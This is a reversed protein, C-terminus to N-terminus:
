VEIGCAVQPLNFWSGERSGPSEGGPSKKYSFTHKHSDLPRSEILIELFGHPIAKVGQNHHEQTAVPVM